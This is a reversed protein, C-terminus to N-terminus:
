HSRSYYVSRAAIEETPVDAARWCIHVAEQKEHLNNEDARCSQDTCRYIIFRVAHMSLGWQLRRRLRTEKNRRRGSHGSMGVGWNSTM